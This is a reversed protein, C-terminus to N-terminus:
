RWTGSARVRYGHGGRRRDRRAMLVGAACLLVGAVLCVAAAVTLTPSSQPDQRLFAVRDGTAPSRPAVAAEGAGDADRPRQDLPYADWLADPGSPSPEAGADQASVGPAAALLLLVVALVAPALRSM